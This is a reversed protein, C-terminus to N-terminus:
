NKSTPNITEEAENLRKLVICLNDIWTNSHSCNHKCDELIVKMAEKPSTVDRLKWVLETGGINQVQSLFSLENM